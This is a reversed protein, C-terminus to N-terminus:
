DDAVAGVDDRRGYAPRDDRARETSEPPQSDIRSPGAANDCSPDVADDCSPEISDLADYGRTTRWQSYAAANTVAFLVLVWGGLLVLAAM